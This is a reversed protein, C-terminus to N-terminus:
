LGFYHIFGYINEYAVVGLFNNGVMNKTMAYNLVTRHGNAKHGNIQMMNCVDKRSLSGFKLRGFKREGTKQNRVQGFIASPRQEHITVYQCPRIDGLKEPKPAFIVRNHDTLM